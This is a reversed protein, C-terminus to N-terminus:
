LPWLGDLILSGLKLIARVQERLFKAIGVNQEGMEGRSALKPERLVSPTKSLQQKLSITGGAFLLFVHPMGEAGVTM